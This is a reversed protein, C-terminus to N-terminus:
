ASAEADGDGARVLVATTRNETTFVRRAVRVVDEASVAEFAAPSRLAYTYDGFFVESTGIIGARGSITKMGRFHEALRQRKVKALEAPSPGEGALRAIEEWLLAEGREASVGDRMECNVIFLTPDVTLDFGGGVSIAARERHVLRNYLRSSHGTLLISELVRLAFYDPHRAGPIHWAASYSVLHSPLTLEVRREAEQPPETVDVAPPSPSAAIRGFTREALPVLAERDFDGAAVLLANGPSYYTRYYAELDEARWTSIDEMWGIVPWHYPHTTFATAWLREDLLAQNNSEIMSHREALVVGRESEVVHPDLALGHMRDAELEFITELAERPFWDQYVTVDQTTYANNRGGAREMIVDFQMHGHARTGNFMMHEFFHSLGTLGARENRSGCRYFIYLAVNPIAADPWALISLGNALRATFIGAGLTAVASM